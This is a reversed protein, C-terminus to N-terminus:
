SVGTVRAESWESVRAGHGNTHFTLVSLSVFLAPGWKGWQGVASKRADRTVRTSDEM